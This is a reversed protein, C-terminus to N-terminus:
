LSKKRQKCVRRYEVVTKTFSVLILGIIALFLFSLLSAQWGIEASLEEARIEKGASIDSLSVPLLSLYILPISIFGNHLFHGFISWTIGYKMRIYALALGILFQPLILLPLLFWVGKVEYFNLLHLVAFLMISFYFIKAFNTTYFKQANDFKIKRKFFFGLVSGILVVAMLYLYIGNNQVFSLLQEPFSFFFRVAVFELLISVFALFLFSVSFALRFPSYFLGLRFTFEEVIPAWILALFLFTYLPQDLFLDMVSSNLEGIGLFNMLVSLLIGLIFVAVIIFSWLKFVQVVKKYMSVELFGSAYKPHRLYSLFDRLLSFNNNRINQM